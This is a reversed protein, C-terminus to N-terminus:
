LAASEKAVATVVVDARPKRSRRVARAIERRQALASGLSRAVSRRFLLRAAEGLRGGVVAKAADEVAIGAHMLASANRYCSITCATCHDRCDPIRDLDFVSGFRKAWAECRWIDLNWDLYFYKYGAVCAFQEKEGRVHRQVDELSNAPNFVLFHKGMSKIKEFAEILEDPEFRVLASSSGFVMSSSGLPAVRPYSFSVAEFGLWRLLEPLRDFNVLRNVTVSAVTPIGNRRAEALGERIRECVGPLGRNHEHKSISDSDISVLLIGLGAKVLGDIKQPLLWGNTILSTRMGAARADEALGEIEPHLLTEGGQFTMYRVGRRHLIPLARAFERRDIWRKDKVIQKNYAYSCFDCTANCANTVSVDCVVPVVSRRAVPTAGVASTGKQFWKWAM